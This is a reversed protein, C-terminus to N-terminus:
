KGKKELPQLALDLMGALDKFIERVHKEKGSNNYPNKSQRDLDEQIRRIAAIAELRTM